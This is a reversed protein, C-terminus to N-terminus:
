FMALFPQFISFYYGYIAATRGSTSKVLLSALLINRGMIWLRGFILAILATTGSSNDLSRADAFAHDVKVFASKIVKEVCTPFRVMYGM